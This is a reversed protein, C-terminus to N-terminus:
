SCRRGSSALRPSVRGRLREALDPYSVPTPRQTEYMDSVQGARTMSRALRVRVPITPNPMLSRMRPGRKAKSTRSRIGSPRITAVSFSALPRARDRGCGCGRGNVFIRGVGPPEAHHFQDDGEGARFESHVMCAALYAANTAIGDVEVADLAGRMRDIAADRDSGRVIIKALLPDYHFTVEDGERFGTDVRVDDSPEPMRFRVLRGPSPM